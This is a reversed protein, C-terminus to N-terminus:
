HKFSKATDALLLHVVSSEQPLAVFYLRKIHQRIRNDAMCGSWYVLWLLRSVAL